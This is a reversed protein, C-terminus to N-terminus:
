ASPFPPPLDGVSVVSHVKVGQGSSCVALCGGVECVNLDGTSPCVCCSFAESM